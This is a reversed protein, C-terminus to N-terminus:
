HFRQLYRNRPAGTLPSPVARVPAGTLFSPPIGSTGSLSSPAGSVISRTPAGSLGSRTPAGSVASRAPAGSLSSPAHPPKGGGTTTSEQWASAAGGRDTFTQRPQSKRRSKRVASAATSAATSPATSPAAPVPPPPFMALQHQRLTNSSAFAHNDGSEVAPAVALLQVRNYWVPHTGTAQFHKHCWCQQYPLADQNSNKDFHQGWQQREARLGQADESRSGAQAYHRRYRSQGDTSNYDEMQLEQVTSNWNDPSVEEYLPEVMYEHTAYEMSPQKYSRHHIVRFLQQTWRSDTCSSRKKRQKRAANRTNSSDQLATTSIRVVANVELSTLKTATKRMMERAQHEIGDQAQQVVAQQGAQQRLLLEQQEKRHQVGDSQSWREYAEM